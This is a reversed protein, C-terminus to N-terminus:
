RAGDARSFVLAAQSGAKPAHFRETKESAPRLGGQGVGLGKPSSGAKRNDSEKQDDSMDFQMACYEKEATTTAGEQGSIASELSDKRDVSVGFQMACYEKKAAAIADEQGSITSELLNKQEESVDFQMACYKKKETAIAAEQGSIARERSKKRNDSVDFQM